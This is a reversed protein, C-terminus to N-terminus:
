APTNEDIFDAIGQISALQKPDIELENVPLGFEDGSWAIIRLLSLSTVIGLGVLNLQTDLEEAPVDTAIEQAIYDRVKTLTAEPM